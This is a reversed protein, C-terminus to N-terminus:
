SGRGTRCFLVLGADLEGLEPVRRGAPMLPELRAICAISPRASRQSAQRVEEVRHQLQGVLRAGRDAVNVADAVEQINEWGEALTNPSLSVIRPCAGLWDGVAAEVEPLSVACVEGQAQ